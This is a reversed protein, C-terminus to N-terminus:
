SRDLRAFTVLNGGPEEYTLEDSKYFTVHREVAVKSGKLAAIVAELDDVEVFVVARRSQRSLAQLAAPENANGRTEVMMNVGDKTVMAFGVRDGEPVEFAVEFGLRRFFDRTPEVRDVFLVPTAGSIKM